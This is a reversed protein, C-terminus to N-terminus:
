PHTVDPRMVKCMVWGFVRAMIVTAWGLRLNMLTSFHQELLENFHVMRNADRPHTTTAVVNRRVVNPLHLRCGFDMKFIPELVISEFHGINGICVAVVDYINKLHTM